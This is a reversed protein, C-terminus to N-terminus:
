WFRKKVLNRQIKGTPLRPLEEEWFEYSKPKKFGSLKEEAMAHLEKLVLDPDAGSELNIVAKIEEGWEKNPVGVCCVESVKEHMLLVNDIEQPYINTRGSIITDASRGTLFHYGDEDCYGIDGM